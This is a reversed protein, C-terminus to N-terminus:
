AASMQGGLWREDGYLTQSAAWLKFNNPIKFNNGRASFKPQTKDHTEQNMSIIATLM